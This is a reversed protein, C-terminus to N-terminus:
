IDYPDDNKLMVKIARRQIRELKDLIRKTYPNWVVSCYIGPKLSSILFPSNAILGLM